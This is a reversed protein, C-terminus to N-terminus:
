DETPELRKHKIMLNCDAIPFLIEEDPTKNSSSNFRSLTYSPRPSQVPSLSPTRISNSSSSRSRYIPPPPPFSTGKNLSKRRSISQHFFTTLRPEISISTPMPLSKEENNKKKKKERLEKWSITRYSFSTNVEEEELCKEPPHSSTRDSLDSGVASDAYIDEISHNDADVINWAPDEDLFYQIRGLSKSRIEALSRRQFQRRHRRSAADATLYDAYTTEFATNNRPSKKRRLLTRFQAAIELPNVNSCNLLELHELAATAVDFPSSRNSQSM